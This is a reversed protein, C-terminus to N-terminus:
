HKVCLKHSRSLSISTDMRGNFVEGIYDNGCLIIDPKGDEDVDKVAVGSVPALQAISPLPIIEFKWIYM